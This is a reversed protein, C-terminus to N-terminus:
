KPNDPFVRKRLEELTMIDAGKATNCRECLLQVNEWRTTGGKSKPLIHDLTKAILQLRRIGMSIKYKQGNAKLTRKKKIGGIKPLISQIDYERIVM